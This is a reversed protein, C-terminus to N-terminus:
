RETRRDLSAQHEGKHVDTPCTSLPGSLHDSRKHDPLGADKMLTDPVRRLGPLEPHAAGTLLAHLAQFRRARIPIIEAM